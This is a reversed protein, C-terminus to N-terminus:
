NINPATYNSFTRMTCQEWRSKEYCEVCLVECNSLIAPKTRDKHRFRAEAISRFRVPCRGYHDHGLRACQCQKGSKLFAQAKDPASFDKAM